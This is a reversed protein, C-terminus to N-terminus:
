KAIPPLQVPVCWYLEIFWAQPPIKLNTFGLTTRKPAEPV